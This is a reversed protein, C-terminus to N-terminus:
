PVPELAARRRLTDALAIPDVLAGRGAEADTPFYLLLEDVVPEATARETGLVDGLRRGVTALVRERLWTSECATRFSAARDGAGLAQLRAITGMALEPDLGAAHQEAWGPAPRELMAALVLVSAATCRYDDSRAADLEAVAAEADDIRGARLAAFARLTAVWRRERPELWESRGVEDLLEFAHDPEVRARRVSGALPPPLERDPREAVRASTTVGDPIVCQGDVVAFRRSPEVFELVEARGLMRQLADATAAVAKRADLSARTEANDIADWVGVAGISLLGAGSLLVLLPLVAF